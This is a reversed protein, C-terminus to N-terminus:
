PVSPFILRGPLHDLPVRGLVVVLFPLQRESVAEFPMVAFLNKRAIADCANATPALLRM